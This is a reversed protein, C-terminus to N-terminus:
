PKERGLWLERYKRNWDIHSRFARAEAGKVCRTVWISFPLSGSLYGLIPLLVMSPVDM